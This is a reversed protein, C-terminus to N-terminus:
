PKTGVPQSIARAPGSCGRAMGAAVASPTRIYTLASVNKGIVVERNSLPTPTPATTARITVLMPTLMGSTASSAPRNRERNTIERTTLTKITAIVLPGIKVRAM